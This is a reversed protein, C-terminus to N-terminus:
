SMVMPRPDSSWSTRCHLSMSAILDHFLILCYKNRVQFLSRGNELVEDVEICFKQGPWMAETEAFWGDKILTDRSNSPTLQLGTFEAMTRKFITNTTAISSTRNHQIIPRAALWFLTPLFRM